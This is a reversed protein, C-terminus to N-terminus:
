SASQNEIIALLEAIDNLVFDAVVNQNGFSDGYRAFATQM